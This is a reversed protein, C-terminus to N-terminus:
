DVKVVEGSEDFRYAIWDDPTFLEHDDEAFPQDFTQGLVEVSELSEMADRVATYDNADGAEAVAAAYTLTASYLSWVATLILPEEGYEEEYRDTLDTLEPAQFDIPAAFVTGDWEAPKSLETFAPDLITATAVVEPEYSVQAMSRLMTAHDAGTTFWVIVTDVGDRRLANVQATMSTAGPDVGEAKVLDLGNDEAYSRVADYGAQGFGDTGYIMGVTKGEGFATAAVAEINQANNYNTRFAWNPQASYDIIEDATPIGTMWPRGSRQIIPAVQLAVGSLSPGFLVDVQEQNLLEQILRAGTEPEGKDDRKVLDFTVGYREEAEDQALEIGRELETWYQSAPSTKPGIVGAKVNLGGSASDGGMGSDSCAALAGSLLVASSLAAVIKKTSM